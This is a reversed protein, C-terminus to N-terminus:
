RLVVSGAALAAMGDNDISLNSFLQRKSTNHLCSDSLLTFRKFTLLKSQLVRSIGLTLM